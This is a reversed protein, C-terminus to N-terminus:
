NEDRVINKNGMTSMPFPSFSKNNTNQAKKLSVHPLQPYTLVTQSAWAKSQSKQPAKKNQKTITIKKATGYPQNSRLEGLLSQDLTRKPPLPFWQVVLFNGNKNKTKKVGEPKSEWKQQQQQQKNQKAKKKKRRDQLDRQLSFINTILLTTERDERLVKASIALYYFFGHSFPIKKTNRTGKLGVCNERKLKRGRRSRGKKKKTKFM